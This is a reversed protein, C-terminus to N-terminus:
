SFVDGVGIPRKGLVQEWIKVLQSEVADASGRSDDKPLDNCAPGSHAGTSRGM